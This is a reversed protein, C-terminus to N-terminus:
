SVGRMLQIVIRKPRFEHYHHIDDPCNLAAITADTEPVMDFSDATQSVALVM